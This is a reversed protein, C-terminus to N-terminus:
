KGLEWRYMKSCVIWLHFHFISLTLFFISVPPDLINCQCHFTETVHVPIYCWRILICHLVCQVIHMHVSTHRQIHKVPPSSLTFVFDMDMNGLCGRLM